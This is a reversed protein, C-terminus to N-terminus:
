IVFLFAAPLLQLLILMLFIVVNKYDAM